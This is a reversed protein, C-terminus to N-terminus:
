FEITFGSFDGRPARESADIHDVKAGPPGKELWQRYRHVASQPGEAWTEVGGDPLNMVWGRLNLSKAVSRAEFRFGVGQVRGRVLGLIAM